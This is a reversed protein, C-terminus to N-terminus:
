VVFVFRVASCRVQMEIVASGDTSDADDSAAARVRDRLLGLFKLLKERVAELMAHKFNAAKFMNAARQTPLYTPHNAQTTENPGM